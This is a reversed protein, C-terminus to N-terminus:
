KRSKLPPPRFRYTTAVGRHGNSPAEYHAVLELWGEKVAADRLKGVRQRSVGLFGGLREVPLAIPQDPEVIKQLHMAIAYLKRSVQRSPKDPLPILDSSTADARRVAEALPDDFCAPVRIKDWLDVFDEWTGEQGDVFSFEDWPNEWGGVVVLAEEVLDAAETASLMVLRPHFRCLQVFRFMCNTWEDRTSHWDINAQVAEKIFECLEGDISM